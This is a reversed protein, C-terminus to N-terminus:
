GLKKDFGIPIYIESLEIKKEKLISDNELTQYYDIDNLGNDKLLRIGKKSIRYYKDLYLLEKECLTELINIIQEQDLGFDESIELYSYNIKITNFYVLLLLKKYEM